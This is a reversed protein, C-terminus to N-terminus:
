STEYIIKWIKNHTCAQHGDCFQAQLKELAIKELAIKASVIKAPVIKRAYNHAKSQTPDNVTSVL